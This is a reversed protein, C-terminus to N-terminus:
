SGAQLVRPEEGLFIVGTRNIVKTFPPMDVEIYDSRVVRLNPNTRAMHKEPLKDIEETTFPRDVYRKQIYTGRKFFPPYDNWNVGKEHLMDHMEACSKGHLQNHSYMSQAAMSVSNRTADMERWILCNAAETENPVNFVRCDFKPRATKCRDPMGPDDHVMEWFVGSCDAALLSCLKQVRGGFPLEAKFDPALWILTIEDSQTYGICCNWQEVLHKTTNVMLDSLPKHYPRTLGKTFTHFAKGDLRAIAPLMPILRQDWDQEYQKM